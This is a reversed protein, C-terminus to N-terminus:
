FGYTHFVYIYTPGFGPTTKRIFEGAFLHGYGAGITLHRYKYTGFVDAEEGVHRGADGAPSRALAKGSGSYLADRESAIWFSDYM